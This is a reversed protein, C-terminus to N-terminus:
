TGGRDLSKVLTTGFPLRKRCTKSLLPKSSCYFRIKGCFCDQDDEVEKSKKKKKKKAKKVPPEEAEEMEITTEAEM